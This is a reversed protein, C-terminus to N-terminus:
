GRRKGPNQDKWFNADKKTLHKTKPAGIGQMRESMPNQTAVGTDFQAGTGYMQGLANNMPQFLSYTQNLMNQYAQSLEPRMQQSAQAGAQFQKLQHEQYPDQFFQGFFPMKSKNWNMDNM